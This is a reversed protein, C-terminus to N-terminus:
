VDYDGSEGAYIRRMVTQVLRLDGPKFKKSALEDISMDLTEFLPKMKNFTNGSIGLDESIKKTKEVIKGLYAVQAFVYGLAILRYGVMIAVDEDKFIYATYDLLLSDLKKATSPRLYRSLSGADVLDLYNKCDAETLVKLSDRTTKRNKSKLWILNICNTFKMLTTDKVIM